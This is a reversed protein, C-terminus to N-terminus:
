KIEKQQLYENPRYGTNEKFVKFFYNYNNFGVEKAIDKVTYRGNKLLNIAMEIRRNNLLESFSKECEENILRSLYVASIDIYEAVDNLGINNKYNTYIYQVAKKVYSNKIDALAKYNYEEMVDKYINLIQQLIESYKVKYILEGSVQLNELMNQAKSLSYKKCFKLAIHVLEAYIVQVSRISINETHCKEFIKEIYYLVESNAGNELLLEISEEDKVSLSISTEMELRYAFIVEKDDYLRKNMASKVNSYYIPIKKYDRCIDSISIYIKIGMYNKIVSCIRSALTNINQYIYLTSNIKEFDVFMVISESTIQALFGKNEENIVKEILDIATHLIRDSMRLKIDYVKDFEIQCVIFNRFNFKVSLLALEEKCERETIDGDIIRNVINKLIVLRNYSVEEKLLVGKKLVKKKLIKEHISNLIKVLNEKNLKHKLIYDFAGNKLSSRVYEFDDYASVALVEIETNNERLKEILKVGDMCPMNMDTIILDFVRENIINLCEEGNKCEAQISFGYKEWEILTKLNTVSVIDDDVLIINLM